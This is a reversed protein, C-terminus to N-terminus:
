LVGYQLFDMAPNLSVSTTSLGSNFDTYASFSQTIVERHQGVNRLFVQHWLWRKVCLGYDPDVCRWDRIASEGTTNTTKVGASQVDYCRGRSARERVGAMDSSNVVRQPNPLATFVSLILPRIKTGLTQCRLAVSVVDRDAM